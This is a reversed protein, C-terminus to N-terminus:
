LRPQPPPERRLVCQEWLVQAQSEAGELHSVVTRFELVETWDSAKEWKKQRWACPPVCVYTYAFCM